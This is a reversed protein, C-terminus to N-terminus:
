PGPDARGTRRGAEGCNFVQRIAKVRSDAAEPAEAKRDRLTRVAKSNFASLPMDDFTRAAGPKIPEKWCAELIQRRVHQTRGDLQKYEASSFYQESLWRLTGKTSLKPGHAEGAYTGDQLPREAEGGTLLPLVGKEPAAAPTRGAFLRM